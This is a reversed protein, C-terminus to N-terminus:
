VILGLANSFIYFTTKKFLVDTTVAVCVNSSSSRLSCQSRKPKKKVKTLRKTFVNLRIFLAIRDSKTIRDTPPSGEGVVLQLTKKAPFSVKCM